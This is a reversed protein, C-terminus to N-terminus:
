FFKAALVVAGVIAVQDLKGWINNLKVGHNLRNDTIKTFRYFQYFPFFKLHLFLYPGALVDEILAAGIIIAAYMISTGPFVYVLLIYSLILAVAGDVCVDLFTRVKGKQKRTTLADWHPIMDLIIHSGLALPIALAPNGFKAAIVTGVIAHSTATMNKLIKACPFQKDDVFGEPLVFM